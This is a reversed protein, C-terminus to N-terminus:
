AFTASGDRRSGVEFRDAVKARRFVYHREKTM